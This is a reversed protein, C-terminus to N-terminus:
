KINEEILAILDDDSSKNSIINGKKDIVIKTPIARVKYNAVVEDKYDYLVNFTYKNESIFKVVKENIEEPKKREWVNVFFFEVDENKYKTVLEQMKPFSAICPGCWTAWFDLIVVKGKYDSLKINKGELNTLNFDIEKESGYFKIIEERRKEKSIALTNSKIKEFDSKQLGLENYISELQNILVLSGEGTQFEKELYNKTFEPGKAKQAYLAYREKEGHEYKKGPEILIEQNQFALNYKKLKYLILAYTDIYMFYTGKLRKLEADNKSSDIKDQIIDLSSKSIIEAFELDEGPSTLNEGSLKWAANNYRGSLSSKESILTEYKKINELDKNELYVGVLMTYFHDKIQQSNDDFKQSYEALADLIFKETKIKNAYISKLYNRRALEGKPYKELITKHLSDSKENLQLMSYIGYAVMLNKEDEKESLKDAYIIFEPRTKEKDIRYKLYLYTTYPEDNKLGPHQEFLAEYKIVIEKNSIETKLYYNAINWTKTYDLESNIQEDKTNNKLYITYGKGSNNDIVKNEQDDISLIIVSISDPVQLVFEYHDEKKVLPTSEKPSKYFVYNVISNDKIISENIPKYVFINKEGAQIPINKPVIIGNQSFSFQITIVFLIFTSFKM